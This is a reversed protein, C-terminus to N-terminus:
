RTKKNREDEILRKVYEATSNSDAFEYEEKM